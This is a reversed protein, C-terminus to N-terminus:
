PAAGGTRPEGLYWTPVGAMAPSWCLALAERRQSPDDLATTRREALRAFSRRAREAAELAKRLDSAGATPVSLRTAV